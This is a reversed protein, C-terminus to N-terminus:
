SFPLLQKIVITKVFGLDLCKERIDESIEDYNTIFITIIRYERSLYLSHTHATPQCGLHDDERGASTKFTRCKKESMNTKEM